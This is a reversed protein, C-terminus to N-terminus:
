FIAHKRSITPHALIIDCIINQKGILFFSKKEFNFTEVISGDKIVELSYQSNCPGSWEPKQYESLIDFQQNDKEM